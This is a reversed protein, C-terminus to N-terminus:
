DRSSRSVIRVRRLLHARRPRRARSVLQFQRVSLECSPNRDCAISLRVPILVDVDDSTTVERFERFDVVFGKEARV